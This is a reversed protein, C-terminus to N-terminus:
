CSSNRVPRSLEVLEAKRRIVPFVAPVPEPPEADPDDPDVDADDAPEPPPPPPVTHEAALDLDQPGRCQLALRAILM